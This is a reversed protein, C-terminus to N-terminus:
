NPGVTRVAPWGPTLEGGPALVPLTLVPGVGPQGVLEQESRVQDPLGHHAATGTTHAIIEAGDARLWHVHAPFPNTSDLTLCLQARQQRYYYHDTKFM